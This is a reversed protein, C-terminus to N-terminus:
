TNENLLQGNPDCTLAYVRVKGSYPNANTPGDDGVTMNYYKKMERETNFLAIGSGDTVVQHNKKLYPAALYENIFDGNSIGIYMGWKGSAKCLRILVSHFDLLEM